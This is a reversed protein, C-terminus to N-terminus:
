RWSEDEKNHQIIFNWQRRVAKRREIKRMFKSWYEGAMGVRRLWFFLKFEWENKEYSWDLKDSSRQSFVQIVPGRSYLYRTINTSTKATIQVRRLATPYYIYRVVAAIKWFSQSIGTVDFHRFRKGRRRWSGSRFFTRFKLRCHLHYFIPKNLYVYSISLHTKPSM